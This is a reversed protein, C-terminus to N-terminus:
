GAMRELLVMLIVAVIAAGAVTPFMWPLQPPHNSDHNPHM